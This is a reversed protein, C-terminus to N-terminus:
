GCNTSLNRTGGTPSFLMGDFSRCTCSWKDGAGPGIFFTQQNEAVPKYATQSQDFSPPNELGRALWKEVDAEFAQQLEDFGLESYISRVIPRMEELLSKAKEIDKIVCGTVDQLQRFEDVKTVLNKDIFDIFNSSVEESYHQALLM